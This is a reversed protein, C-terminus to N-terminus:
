TVSRLFKHDPYLIELLSSKVYVSIKLFLKKFDSSSAEVFLIIKLWFNSFINSVWYILFWHIFTTRFICKWTKANWKVVGEVPQKCLRM